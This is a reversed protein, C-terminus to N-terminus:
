QIISTRWRELARSDRQSRLQEIAKTIEKVSPLEDLKAQFPQQSIHLVAPDQVVRDTSFVLSESHLGQRHLPSQVWHILGYVTKLAKHFGRYDGAKDAPASSYASQVEASPYFFFFFFFFVLSTPQPHHGMISLSPIRTASCDKVQCGFLDRTKCCQVKARVPSSLCNSLDSEILRNTMNARKWIKALIQILAIATPDIM